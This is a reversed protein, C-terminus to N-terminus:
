IHNVVYFFRLCFHIEAKHLGKQFDDFVKKYSDLAQQIGFFEEITMSEFMKKIKEENSLKKEVYGTEAEVIETKPEKINDVMNLFSEENRLLNVSYQQM